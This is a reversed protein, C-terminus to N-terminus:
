RNSKVIKKSVQAQEGTFQAIYVGEKLFSLDVTGINSLTSREAVVRGNIDVIRVSTPEDSRYELNEFVLTNLQLGSVKSTLVNSGTPLGLDYFTFIGVTDIVVDEEITYRLEARLVTSSLNKAYFEWTILNYEFTDIEGFLPRSIGSFVLERRIRLVEFTSDGPIKLKGYGNTEYAVTAEADVDVLVSEFTSTSGDRLSDGFTLPTELFTISSDFQFTLTIPVDINPTLGVMEVVDTQNKFFANGVFYQFGYDAGTIDDGGDLKEPAVYADTGRITPKMFSLDYNFNELKKDFIIWPIEETTLQMSVVDQEYGIYPFEDSTLTIQAFSM